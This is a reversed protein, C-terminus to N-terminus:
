GRYPTSRYVNYCSWYFKKSIEAITENSRRIIRKAERDHVKRATKASLASGQFEEPYKKIILSIDSIDHHKSPIPMYVIFLFGTLAFILGAINLINNKEMEKKM